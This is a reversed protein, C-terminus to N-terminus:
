RHAGSRCVADATGADAGAGRVAAHLGLAQRCVAAQGPAGLRRATEGAAHASGARVRAPRLQPAPLVQGGHRACSACRGRGGRWLPQGRRLQYGGDAKSAEDFRV